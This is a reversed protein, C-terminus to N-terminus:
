RKAYASFKAEFISTSPFNGAIFKWATPSDLDNKTVLSDFDRVPFKLLM